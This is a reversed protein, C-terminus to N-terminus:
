LLNVSQEQESLPKAAIWQMVEKEDPVIEKILGMNGKHTLDMKAKM